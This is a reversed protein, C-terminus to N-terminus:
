GGEVAERGPNEIAEIADLLRAAGMYEADARSLNLQESAEEDRGLAVLCRAFGIRAYTVWFRQELPIGVEVVSRYLGLAGDYDGRTEAVRAQVGGVQAVMWESTPRAIRVLMEVQDTMGMSVMPEAVIPLYQALFVPNDVSIEALEDAMRRAEAMEGNAVWIMIGMALSPFLGQADKGRRSQDLVDVWLQRAEVTSGRFFLVIAQWATAFTSIQSGGRAQDAEVLQRAVALTEDWEGLPFLAECRTNRSWDAASAYGRQGGYEIAEEILEKGEILRGAIVVNTALNNYAVIAARTDNRDLSIRL